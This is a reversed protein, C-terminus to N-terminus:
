KATGASSSRESSCGTCLRCTPQAEAKETATTLVRSRPHCSGLCQSRRTRTSSSSQHREESLQLLEWTAHLSARLRHVEGSGAVCGWGVQLEKKKAERASGQHAEHQRASSPKSCHGGAAGHHLSHTHWSSELRRICHRQQKCGVSKRIVESAARVGVREDATVRTLVDHASCDKCCRRALAAGSHQCKCLM